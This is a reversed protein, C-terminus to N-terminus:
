EHFQGYGGRDRTKIGNVTEGPSDISIMTGIFLMVTRILTRTM